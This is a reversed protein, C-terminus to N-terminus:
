VNHYPDTITYRRGPVDYHCRQSGLPATSDTTARKTRVTVNCHNCTVFSLTHADNLTCTDVQLCLEEQCICAGEILRESAAICREQSRM